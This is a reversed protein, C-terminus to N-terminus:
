MVVGRAHKVVVRVHLAVRVRANARVAARASVHNPSGERIFFCRAIMSSSIAKRSFSEAAGARSPPGLTITGVRTLPGRDYVGLSSRM